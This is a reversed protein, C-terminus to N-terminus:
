DNFLIPMNSPLNSSASLFDDFNEVREANVKNKPLVLTTGQKEGVINFLPIVYKRGQQFGIFIYKEEQAKKYWNKM